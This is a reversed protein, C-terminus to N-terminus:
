QPAGASGSALHELRGELHNKVSAMGPKHPRSLRKQDVQEPGHM